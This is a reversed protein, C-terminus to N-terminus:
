NSGTDAAECGESCYKRVHREVLKLLPVITDENLSYVRKRGEKRSYVFRCRKLVRLGHSLKSREEGLEFALENVSKPREKLATIIGVKLRSALTRFFLHGNEKM